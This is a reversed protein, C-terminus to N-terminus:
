TLVEDVLACLMHIIVQHAEQIRATINSDVSLIPHYNAATAGGRGTVLIVRMNLMRAIEIAHVINTSKGSTSFAILMSTANNRDVTMRPLALIQRSFIENYGFDNGIATLVSVDTNLCVSAVPPRTKEFRGVLEATLHSAHAASGGNGCTIVTGGDHHCRIITAACGRVADVDISRIVRSSESLIELLNTM